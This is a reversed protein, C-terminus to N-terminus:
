WFKWWPKSEKKEEKKTQPKPPEPVYTSKTPAPFKYSGGASKDLGYMEQSKKTQAEQQSIKNLTEQTSSSLTYSGGGGSSSKKTTTPAPAEPLSSEYVNITPAEPLSAEKKTVPAIVEGTGFGAPIIFGSGSGSGSIIPKEETAGASKTLLVYSAGGILALGLLNNQSAM